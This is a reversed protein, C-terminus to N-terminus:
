KRFCEAKGNTYRLVILMVNQCSNGPMLYGVMPKVSAPMIMEKTNSFKTITAAHYRPGLSSAMMAQNIGDVTIDSLDQTIPHSTNRLVSDFILQENSM